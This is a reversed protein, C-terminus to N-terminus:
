YEHAATYNYYVVNEYEPTYLPFKVSDSPFFNKEGSTYTVYYGLCFCVATVIVATVKEWVPMVSWQKMMLFVIPLIISHMTICSAGIFNSLDAFHGKLIVSAILLIAVIVVRLTVYKIANAGRDKAAEALNELEAGDNPTAVEAYTQLNNEIDDDTPKHMGLLLRETIYSAPNLIVSFVITTHLQMFM